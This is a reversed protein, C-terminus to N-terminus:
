LRRKAMIVAGVIAALLLLAMIEFSFLWKTYLRKGVSEISGFEEWLKLRRKVTQRQRELQAARAPTLKARPVPNGDDDVEDVEIGEPM